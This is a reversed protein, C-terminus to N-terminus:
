GRYTPMIVTAASCPGSEFLPDATNECLAKSLAYLRRAAVEASWEGSITEYAAKGFRTQREESDLLLKVKSTLDDIDGDRYVFGNEGNKLLFPVSGIMHGAVVACASNMAENMVAGWGENRDSTFLFIRSKEMYDRVREPSMAGLLHVCEELGNEAIMRRLKDELVGNGILNLQFTYGEAKLRKAMLLPAEPHKLPILRAVWLISAPQKAQILGDVNDYHKVAPFYGWKYTKLGCHLLKLDYPLYASSCIVRVKDGRYRLMRNKIKRYTLPIFRRYAGKKFFRESYLIFPKGLRYREYVVEDPCSGFIVIDDGLIKEMAAAYADEGEYARIVFPLQNMDEYGLREQEEPLPTFAVFCYSNNTLESMANSFPLQHHNMFNAVFTIKM